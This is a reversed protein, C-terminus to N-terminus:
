WYWDVERGEDGLEHYRGRFFVLPAGDGPECHTVRGVVIVHDGGDHVEAVECDLRGLSGPVCPLGGPTRHVHLGDFRAGGRTAFRGAVSEQRRGLLSVAFAGRGRVAGTTRADRLLSVLLLPPDLSVSTLSNVSMGSPVGDYETTVVAVGTAFGGM